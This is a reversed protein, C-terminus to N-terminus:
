EASSSMFRDALLATLSFLSVVRQANCVGSCQESLYLCQGTKRLHYTHLWLVHVPGM